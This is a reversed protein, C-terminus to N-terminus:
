RVGLQRLTTKNPEDLRGSAVSEGITGEGPLVSELRLIENTHNKWSSAEPGLRTPKQKTRTLAEKPAM